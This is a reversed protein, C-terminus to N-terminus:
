HKPSIHTILSGVGLMGMDRYTRALRWQLEPSKMGQKNIADDLLTYVEEYKGSEHLADAKSIIEEM